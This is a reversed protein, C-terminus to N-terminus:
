NLKLVDTVLQVFESPLVFRYGNPSSAKLMNVMDVVDQTTMIWADLSLLSYGEVSSSNKPLSELRKVVDAICACGPGCHFLCKETTNMNCVWSRAGIVPKGNSAPLIRGALENYSFYNFYFAGDIDPQQLFEESYKVPDTVTTVPNGSILNVTRTDIKKMIANTVNAFQRRNPLVDPYAYGVGSPGAVFEDLETANNYLHAMASPDLEVFAPAITWGIPVQGRMPSGFHRSDQLTQQDYTGLNDGDSFLFSITHVAEDTHSSPEVRDGEASSDPRSQRAVQHMSPLQFGAMTALNTAGDACHVFAGQAAVAGVFILERPVGGPIWGPVAAMPTLRGIAEFLLKTSNALPTAVPDAYMSFANTWLAYDALKTNDVVTLHQNSWSDSGLKNWVDLPALGTADAHMTLNYSQLAPLLSTHAVLCDAGKASALSIAANTENLQTVSYQVYCSPMLNAKAVAALLRTVTNVPQITVNYISQLSAFTTDYQSGKLILPRQRAALGALSQALLTAEPTFNRVDYMYMVTNASANFGESPVPYPIGPMRQDTFTATTLAVLVAVGCSKSLSAM